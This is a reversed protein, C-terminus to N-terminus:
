LWFGQSPKPVAGPWRVPEDDLLATAIEARPVAYAYRIRRRAFRWTGRERVYEDHYRMACVMPVGAVVLEAHTPVIGTAHDDDVWDLVLGHPTHITHGFGARTRRLAAVVEDRGSTGAFDIDDAFLEGLEEYRDNDSCLCYRHVLELLDLRDALRRLRHDDDSM